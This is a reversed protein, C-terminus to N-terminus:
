LMKGICIIQIEDNEFEVPNWNLKRMARPMHTTLVNYRAGSTQM